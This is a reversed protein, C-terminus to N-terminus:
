LPEEQCLSAVCNRELLAQPAGFITNAQATSNISRKGTPYINTHNLINEFVYLAHPINFARSLM